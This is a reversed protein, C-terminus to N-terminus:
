FKFGITAVVNGRSGTQVAFTNAKDNLRYPFNVDKV